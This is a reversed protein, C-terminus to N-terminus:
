MSEIKWVDSYSNFVFIISYDVMGGEGRVVYEVTSTSGTQRDSLKMQNVTAIMENIKGDENNKRLGEEWQKRTLYYENNENTNLSFYKAALDIDNNKLASIFLDLTEQPTKGGWTDQRMANEYKDIYFKQYLDYKWKEVASPSLWKNWAYAGAGIFLFVTLLIVASKVFKNKLGSDSKPVDLNPQEM